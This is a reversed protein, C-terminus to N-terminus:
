KMHPSLLVTWSNIVREYEKECGAARDEPLIDEDLLYSNDTTNSGYILCVLNYFRQIDLAHVDSLEFRNYRESDQSKFFNSGAKVAKTGSDGSKILLIAALQDVADEEKGTIPLQYVDVLSHGLEHFLIFYNTLYADQTLEDESGSKTPLSNSLLRVAEYCMSIKKNIPDYHPNPVGCESVSITINVPLYFRKNWKEVNREVIQFQKFLVEYKQYDPNKVPVYQVIFDGQDDNFNRVSSLEVNKVFLLATILALSVSLATLAIIIAKSSIM